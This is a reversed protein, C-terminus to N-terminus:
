GGNLLRAIKLAISEPDATTANTLVVVDLGNAPFTANM